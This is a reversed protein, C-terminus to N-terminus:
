PSGIGAGRRTRIGRCVGLSGSHVLGYGCISVGGCTGSGGGTEIGVGTGSDTGCRMGAGGTGGGGVPTGCHGMARGGEKGVGLEGLEVGAGAGAGARDGPAGERIARGIGDVHGSCIGPTNIPVAANRRNARDRSAAGERNGNCHPEGDGSAVGGVKGEDNGDATGDGTAWGPALGEGSGKVDIM